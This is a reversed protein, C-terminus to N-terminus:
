NGTNAVSDLGTVVGVETDLKDLFKGHLVEGVVFEEVVGNGDLSNCGGLLVVQNEVDIAANGDTKDVEEAVAAGKARLLGLIVQRHTDEVTEEDQTAADTQNSMEEVLLSQASAQVTM